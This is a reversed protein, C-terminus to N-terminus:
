LEMGNKFFQDALKGQVYRIGLTKAFPFARANDCRSLVIESTEHAKVAEVFHALQEPPAALLDAHWIVKVFHPKLRNLCLVQFDRWDLGDICLRLGKEECLAKVDAVLAFNQVLDTKHVELVIRGALRTPLSEYFDAFDRGLLTSLSVNVSFSKHRYEAIEKALTRLTARDFDEKLANFLWPNGTLSTEPLFNSEIQNSSVFFELFEISPVKDGIFYVPQNFICHRLDANRLKESLFSLNEPTMAKKGVKAEAPQADAIIAKVVHFVKDLDKVADAVKYFAYENYANRAGVVNDDCFLKEIRSCTQLVESVTVHSYTVFIDGNHATFVEVYPSRAFAKRVFAKASETKRFMDGNRPAQSVFFHIIRKGLPDKKIAHLEHLFKRESDTVRM